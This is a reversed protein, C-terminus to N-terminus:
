IEEARFRDWSEVLEQKTLIAGNSVNGSLNQAFDPPVKGIETHTPTQCVEGNALTQCVQSGIPAPVKGLKGVKGLVLSNASNGEDSPLSRYASQIVESESSNKLSWVWGGLMPSNYKKVGLETGARGITRWSIDADKAQSKLEKTLLDKESLIDVLFQKAFDKASENNQHDGDDIETAEADFIIQHSSGEVQGKWAVISTDIGKYQTQEVSYLFGGDRASLNTKARVLVRDGTEKDIVTAWVMRPLATFAQSGLVREAPDKGQGGKGFHSIGIIACQQDQAFEV